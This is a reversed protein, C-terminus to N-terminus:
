IRCIKGGYQHIGREQGYHTLTKIIQLRNFIYRTQHRGDEYDGARGSRSTAEQRAGSMVIPASLAMTTSSSLGSPMSMSVQAAMVRLISSRTQIHIKPRPAIHASVNDPRHAGCASDGCAPRTDRSKRSIRRNVHSRPQSPKSTFFRTLCCSWDNLIISTSFHIVKKRSANMSIM